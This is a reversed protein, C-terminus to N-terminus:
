EPLWFVEGTWFTLPGNPDLIEGNCDTLRNEAAITLITRQEDDTFLMDHNAPAIKVAGRLGAVGARCRAKIKEARLRKRIHAAMAVDPRTDM